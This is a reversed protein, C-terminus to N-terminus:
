IHYFVEVASPNWIRLHEVGGGVLELEELIRKGMNM